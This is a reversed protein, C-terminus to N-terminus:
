WWPDPPAGSRLEDLRRRTADTADDPLADPPFFRCAAIERGLRPAGIRRWRRVVFLAVHDGPFVRENSFVGHLAPRGELAAGAEEALERALADFLTEGREVGGGPFHWGPSYGHRVLCVRDEGDTLVARVGLTMPRSLRWWPRLVIRNLLSAM